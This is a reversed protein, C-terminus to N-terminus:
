INPDGSGPNCFRAVGNAFFGSGVDDCATVASVGPECQADGSGPSTCAGVGPRADGVRLARAPEYPLRQSDTSEKM